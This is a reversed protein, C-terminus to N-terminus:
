LARLRYRRGYAAADTKWKIDARLGHGGSRIDEVPLGGGKQFLGIGGLGQGQQLLGCLLTIRFSSKYQAIMQQLITMRLLCKWPQFGGRGLAMGLCEKDQQLLAFVVASWGSLKKVFVGPQTFLTVGFGM